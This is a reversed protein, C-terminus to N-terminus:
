VSLINRDSRIPLLKDLRDEAVDVEGVADRAGGKLRGQAVVVTQRRALGAGGGPASQVLFNLGGRGGRRAEAVKGPGEVDGVGHVVLEQRTILAEVAIEQAMQGVALVEEKVGIEEGATVLGDQDFAASCSQTGVFQGMGGDGAEVVKDAMSRQGDEFAAAADFGIGVLADAGNGEVDLAGADAEGGVLGEDAM